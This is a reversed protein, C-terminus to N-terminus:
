QDSAEYEGEDEDENTTSLPTREPLAPPPKRGITVPYVVEDERLIQQRVRAFRYAFALAVTLALLAALVSVAVHRACIWDLVPHNMSWAIRRRREESLRSPWLETDASEQRLLNLTAQMAAAEAQCATCKRLHRSVLESPAKGLERSLYPMLAAQIEQCDRLSGNAQKRKKM